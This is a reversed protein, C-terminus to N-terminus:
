RLDLMVDSNGAGVGVAGLGRRVELRGGAAVVDELLEDSISANSRRPVPPRPGDVEGLYATGADTILASWSDGRDATVVLGRRQLAAVAIHHHMGEYVGDRCGGAVWRLLGVQSETLTKRQAM